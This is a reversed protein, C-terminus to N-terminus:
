PTPRGSKPSSKSSAFTTSTDPGAARGEADVPPYAVCLPRGIASPVGGPRTAPKLSALRGVAATRSQGTEPPSAGYADPWRMKFGEGRGPLIADVYAYTSVIVLSLPFVRRRYPVCNLAITSACHSSGPMDTACTAIDCPMLSLTTCRQRCSARWCRLARYASLCPMKVPPGPRVVATQCM